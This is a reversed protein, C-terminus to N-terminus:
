LKACPAFFFEDMAGNFYSTPETNKNYYGLYNNTSIFDKLNISVDTSTILRGNIYLNLKGDAQTLTYHVWEGLSYVGFSTPQGNNRVSGRVNNSGEWQWTGLFLNSENDNGFDFVRQWVNPTIEDFRVWASITFDTINETINEPLVLYANEGNFLGASGEVGETYGFDGEIKVNDPLSNEFDLYIISDNKIDKKSAFTTPILSFIICM